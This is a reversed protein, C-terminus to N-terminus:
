RCCQKLEPSVNEQKLPGHGRAKYESAIAALQSRQQWTLGNDRPDIMMESRFTEAVATARPLGVDASPTSACATLAALSALAAFSTRFATM